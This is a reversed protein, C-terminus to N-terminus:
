KSTNESYTINKEIKYYLEEAISDFSKPFFLFLTFEFRSKLELFLKIKLRLIYKNYKDEM